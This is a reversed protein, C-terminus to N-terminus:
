ESSRSRGDRAEVRKAQEGGPIFGGQRGGLVWEKYRKKMGPFLRADHTLVDWSWNGCRLCECELVFSWLANPIDDEGQTLKAGGWGCKPCRPDLRRRWWPCSNRKLQVNKGAM